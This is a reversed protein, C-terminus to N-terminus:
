MNLTLLLFVLLLHSVYKVHRNPIPLFIRLTMKSLVRVFYNESTYKHGKWVDIIFNKELITFPREGNVINAFLKSHAEPNQEFNVIVSRLFHGYESNKQDMNKQMWDSHPFIRVLIVGFVPVKWATYSVPGGWHSREVTKM